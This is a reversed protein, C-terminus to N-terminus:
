EGQPNKQTTPQARVKQLIATDVLGPALAASNVLKLDYAWQNMTSLTEALAEDTFEVYRLSSAVVGAPLAKGTM